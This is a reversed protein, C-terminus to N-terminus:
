DSLLRMPQGAAIPALQQVDGLLICRSTKEKLLYTILRGLERTPLMGSEDVVVTRDKLTIRGNELQWLLSAMTGSKIGTEAQLKRAAKGGISCGILEDQRGELRMAEVVAAM